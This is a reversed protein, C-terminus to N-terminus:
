HIRAGNMDARRRQRHASRAAEGSMAVQVVGVSRLVPTHTVISEGDGTSSRPADAGNTALTHNRPSPPSETSSRFTVSSQDLAFGLTAV